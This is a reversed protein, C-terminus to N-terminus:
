RDKRGRRYLPHAPGPEGVCICGGKPTGDLKTLVMGTADAARCFEEAQSIANQGTVADLVLLM